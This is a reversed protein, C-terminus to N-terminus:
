DAAGTLYKTRLYAIHLVCPTTVRYAPAFAQYGILAPSVLIAAAISLKNKSISTADDKSANLSSRIKEGDEKDLHAEWQSMYKSLLRYENKVTQGKEIPVDLKECVDIVIDDYSPGEGRFANRISHGGFARIEDAIDMYYKNHNPSHMKYSPNSELSNSTAAVIHEVLPSLDENSCVSLLAYLDGGEIMQNIKSTNESHCHNEPNLSDIFKKRLYALHLVCPATIRYAAGMATLGATAWGVPGFALAATAFVGAATSKSATASKTRASKLSIEREAPTMKEYQKELQNTLLREENLPTNGVQYSVNLAKCVDIVIEDYSPGGGRFLNRVSHGGYTRLEDGIEKTYMQHYPKNKKFKDNVDLMNTTSSLITSVIPELEDNSCVSLLAYLDGSKVKELTDISIYQANKM